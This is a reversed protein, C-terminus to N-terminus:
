PKQDISFASVTLRQNYPVENKPNYLPDPQRSGPDIRLWPLLKTLTFTPDEYTIEIRIAALAYGAGFYAPFDEPKMLHYSRPNRLDDFYVFFPAGPSYRAPKQPSGRSTWIVATQTSDRIEDLRQEFHADVESEKVPRDESKGAYDFALIANEPWDHNGESRLTMFVIKGPSIEIPVAEGRIRYGRVPRRYTVELVRSATKMGSPTQVEALLRYRIPEYEQVQSGCGALLVSLLASTAFASCLLPTVRFWDASRRLEFPILASRFSLQRRARLGPPSSHGRPTRARCLARSRFGM